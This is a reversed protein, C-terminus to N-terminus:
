KSLTDILFKTKNLVDEISSKTSIKGWQEIISKMDKKLNEVKSVEWLKKGTFSDLNKGFVKLIGVIETRIDVIGDFISGKLSDGEFNSDKSIIENLVNLQEYINTLGENFAAEINSEKLEDSDEWLDYDDGSISSSKEKLVGETLNIDILQKFKTNKQYLKDGDLAFELFNIAYKLEKENNNEDMYKKDFDVIKKKNGDPLILEIANFGNGALKYEFKEKGIAEDFRLTLKTFIDKLEKMDSKVKFIESVKEKWDAAKINDIKTNGYTGKKFKIDCGKLLHLLVNKTLKNVNDLEDKSVQNYYEGDSVSKDKIKILIQNLYNKGIGGRFYNKAFKKSFVAFDVGAINAIFSNAERSQLLSVDSSYKNLYILVKVLADFVGAKSSEDGIAILETLSVLYDTYHRASDELVVDEVGIVENSEDIIKPFLSNIQINLELKRHNYRKLIELISRYTEIYEKIVGGSFFNNIEKNEEERVLIFDRFYKILYDVNGGLNDYLHSMDTNPKWVSTEVIHKKDYDEKSKLNELIQVVIRYKSIFKVNMARIESLIQTVEKGSVQNDFIGM